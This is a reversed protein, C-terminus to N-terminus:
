LWFSGTGEARSILGGSRLLEIDNTLSSSTPGDPDNGIFKREEMDFPLKVTSRYPHIIHHLGDSGMLDDDFGRIVILAKGQHIRVLDAPDKEGIPLPEEIKLFVATKLLEEDQLIIRPYKIAMGVGMEKGHGDDGPSNIFLDPPHQVIILSFFTADEAIEDLLLDKFLLPDNQFCDVEQDKRGKGRAVGKLAPDDRLDMGGIKMM